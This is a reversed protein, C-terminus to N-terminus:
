FPMWRGTRRKIIKTSKQGDIILKKGDTLYKRCFTFGAMPGTTNLRCFENGKVTWKGYWERDWFNWCCQVEIIGDPAYYFRSQQENGTSVVWMTKDSFEARIEAATAKRLKGMDAIPPHGVVSNATSAEPAIAISPQSNAAIDNGLAIVIIAVVLPKRM